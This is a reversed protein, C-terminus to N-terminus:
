NSWTWVGDIVVLAKRLGDRFIENSVADLGADGPPSLHIAEATLDVSGVFDFLAHSVIDKVRLIPRKPKIDPNQERANGNAQSAAVSISCHPDSKAAKLGKARDPPPM